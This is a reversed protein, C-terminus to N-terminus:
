FALALGVTTRGGAELPDALDALALDDLQFQGLAVRRPRARADALHALLQEGVGHDLVVRDLDVALVLCDCMM